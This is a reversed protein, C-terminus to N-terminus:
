VGGTVVSSAPEAAGVQVPTNVLLGLAEQLEATASAKSTQGSFLLYSYPLMFKGPRPAKGSGCPEEPVLAVAEQM